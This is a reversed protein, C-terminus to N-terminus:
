RNFLWFVEFGLQAIKNESEFKKAISIKQLYEGYSSKDDKGFEQFEKESIFEMRHAIEELCVIKLGTRKQVAKVFETVETLTEHTGTVLWASGRSMIEIKLEKKNLYDQNISTIDLEERHSPKVKKQM